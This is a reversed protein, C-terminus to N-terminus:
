RVRKIVVITKDDEYKGQACFVQVDQIVLECIEKASKKRNEVLLKRLRDDGYFDFNNNAAETIGDTYLVIIDNLELNFSEAYYKQDPSIGLVPGTTVFDEVKGSESYVHVPLNHGANVYVCLGKKDKFLECYFLTVFREYPFTEFVLNNIKKMLSTTTVDYEVGMKLAGSVYLAQAAASIGKSAADGIAIGLKYEDGTKIYDFFDGGVIRDPVSIGFIEYNGFELEHEPLINKQIESAKELEVINEKERSEINKSRIVSGLTASIINMDNLLEDNLSKANLAILYQYLFYLEQPKEHCRLKYREGVGTASYHYIGKTILYEDTEEAIITRCKGIKKFIPYKDVNVKYRDEILDVDGIQEILKYATKQSNLKWIRGGIIDIDENQIIEDLVYKLLEEDTEFIPAKKIFSEITKYLKRQEM